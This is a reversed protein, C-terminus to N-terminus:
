FSNNECKTISVQQNDSHTQTTGQHQHQSSNQQQQLMYNTTAVNDNDQQSHLTDEFAHPSNVIVAGTQAASLPDSANGSITGM